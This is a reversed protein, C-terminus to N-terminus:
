EDADLAHDAARMAGIVCRRVQEVAQRDAGQAQQYLATLRAAQQTQVERIARLERLTTRNLRIPPTMTPRPM